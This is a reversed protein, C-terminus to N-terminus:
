AAGVFGLSAATVVSRWRGGGCDSSGDNNTAGADGERERRTTCM